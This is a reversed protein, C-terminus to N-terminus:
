GKIVYALLELVPSKPINPMQKSLSPVIEPQNLGEKNWTTFFYTRLLHLMPRWPVGDEESWIFRYTPGDVASGMNIICEYHM